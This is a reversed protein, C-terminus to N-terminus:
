RPGALRRFIDAFSREAPAGTPDAAADSGAPLTGLRTIGAAGVGLVWRRDAVEIIVVRDRPGLPLQAVIRLGAASSPQALGARRLLWAAAPILALVLLLALLLPTLSTASM